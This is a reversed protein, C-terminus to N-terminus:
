LTVALGLGTTTERTRMIEVGEARRKKVNRSHKAHKTKKLRRPGFLGNEQEMQTRMVVVGRTGYIDGQRM